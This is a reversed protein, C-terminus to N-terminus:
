WGDKSWAWAELEPTESLMKAGAKIEEDTIGYTYALPQTQRDFLAAEIGPLGHRAETKKVPMDLGAIVVGATMHHPRLNIRIERM